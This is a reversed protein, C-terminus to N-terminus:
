LDQVRGMLADAGQGDRVFTVTVEAIFEGINDPDINIAWDPRSAIEQMVPFESQTMGIGCAIVDVGGGQFAISKIAQAAPGVPERSTSAGDSFFLCVPNPAQDENYVPLNRCRDLAQQIAQAAWRLAKPMETSGSNGGFQLKSLDVELAPVVTALPTVDDGFKAINLVFRSGSSGITNSQMTIVLDNVAGTAQRSKDGQMSGSDDIILTVIQPTIATAKKQTLFAM